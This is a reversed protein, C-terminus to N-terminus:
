DNIHIIGDVDVRNLFTKICKIAEDMEDSEQEIHEMRLDEQYDWNEMVMETLGGYSIFFLLNKMAAELKDKQVAM